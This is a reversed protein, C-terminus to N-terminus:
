EKDFCGHYKLAEELANARGEVAGFLADGLEQDGRELALDAKVVDRFMELSWKLLKNQLFEQVVSPMGQFLSVLIYPMIISMKLKMICSDDTIPEFEVVGKNKLGSISEWQIGKPSTLVHSKAKWSFKVGRINLNWETLGPSEDLYTVSNLWPSWRSMQPLDTFRSSAIRDSFPLPLSVSVTIDRGSTSSTTALYSDSETSTVAPEQLQLTSEATEYTPLRDSMEDLSLGYLARSLSPINLLGDNNVYSEFPPSLTDGGLMDFTGLGHSYRALLSTSYSPSNDAVAALIATYALGIGSDFSSSFIPNIRFEQQALKALQMSLELGLLAPKLVFAACSTQGVSEGGFAKRLETAIMEFDNNYKVALDALSEDIAYRLGGDNSFTELAAVQADFSWTGDVTLAKIPEEIFEIADFVGGASRLKDTFVQATDIDWARNADARLKLSPRYLSSSEKIWILDNADKASEKDGVKVKVSPFSTSRRGQDSERSGTDGRTILGNIPLQDFLTQVNSRPLQWYNAAIAQPLLTGYLQSSVSLIAMELGSRVSPAASMNDIGALGFIADTCLTLSGDFSLVREANFEARKELSPSELSQKILKLQCEAEDLSEKHLGKLPSVEGVGVAMGDRSALSIIFGERRKLQKGNGLRASDGWGIGRVGKENGAAGVDISFSDYEMIGVQHLQIPAATVEKEKQVSTATLTPDDTTPVVDNDEERSVKEDVFDSIIAAVKEPEEVLLAHGANKLEIYEAIGCIDKWARGIRSYKKDWGGAVFLTNSPVAAKYDDQSSLPPSCGYLM